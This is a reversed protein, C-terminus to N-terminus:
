KCDTKAEYLEANNHTTPCIKIDELSPATAAPPPQDEDEDEDSGVLLFVKDSWGMVQQLVEFGEAVAVAGM